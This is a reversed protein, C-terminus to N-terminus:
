APDAAPKEAAVPQTTFFKPKGWRYVHVSLALWLSGLVYAGMVDSFWHQGLYIRSPGMLAIVLLFLILLVTRLIGHKLLTYCLFAIFGYFCTALLVHGSPFSLTNLQNLVHVLDSSPRPRAVVLKIISGLVPGLAAFVAVVFEWRLGLLFLVALVLAVLLDVQPVFGMWTLGRMLADFAEGKYSQLARTVILDIRFYPVFHAGVALGVFVGTAILVYAQFAAARYRRTPRREIVKTDIAQHLGSPPNSAAETM